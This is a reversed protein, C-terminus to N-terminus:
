KSCYPSKDRTNFFLKKSSVVLKSEALYVCSNDSCSTCKGQFMFLNFSCKLVANKLVEAFTNHDQCPIGLFKCDPKEFAEIYYKFARKHSCDPLIQGEKLSNRDLKSVPPFEESLGPCGPQLAANNAYFDVHGM